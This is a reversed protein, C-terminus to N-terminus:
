PETRPPRKDKRSTASGLRIVKFVLRACINEFNKDSSGIQGRLEQSM